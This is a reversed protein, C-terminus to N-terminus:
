WGPPRTADISWGAGPALLCGPRGRLLAQGQPHHRTIDTVWLQNPGIWHLRPRGPRRRDPRAHYPAVHVPRDGRGAWRPADAPCRRTASWSAAALACSPMCATPATPAAFRRTSSLSWSMARRMARLEDKLEAIRRKAAVLESQESSPLDPELGRDIRDQRHWTYISQDLIGLAKAVEAIPRRGPGPGPAQSPVGASLRTTGRWKRRLNLPRFGAVRSRRCHLYAQAGPRTQGGV